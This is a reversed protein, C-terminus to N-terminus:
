AKDRNALNRMTDLIDASFRESEVALAIRQAIYLLDLLDDKRFGDPRKLSDLYMAGIVGSGGILPLCIVSEIKLVQLTDLVGDRNEVYSKSYVVPKGSKLVVKVVKESYSSKKSRCPNSLRCISEKTDLSEPEVLVFAGRDLRKLHHFIHSLVEDLMGNLPLDRQLITTVGSQLDGRKQWSRKRRNEFRGGNMSARRILTATELYPTMKDKCKEGLGIVTMGIAIPAGEVIEIEQYPVLYEGGYFTRNRSKLDTIFYRDEEVVIRLHKRSMTKDDICIDNQPSRGLLCEGEQLEFSRGIQPGSIIYLNIMIWEKLVSLAM